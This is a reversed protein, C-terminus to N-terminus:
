IYTYISKIHRPRLGPTQYWPAGPATAVTRCPHGVVIRAIPVVTCGPATAVTRCPHGVVIRAIPVVSPKRCRNRGDPVGSRCAVPRPYARRVNANRPAAPPHPSRYAQPCLPGPHIAGLNPAAGAADRAHTTRCPPAGNTLLSVYMYTTNYILMHVHTSYSLLTKSTDWIHGWAHRSYADPRPIRSSRYNIMRAPTGVV